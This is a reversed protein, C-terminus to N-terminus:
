LAAELWHSIKDVLDVEFECMIVKFKTNLNKLEDLTHVIYEVALHKQTINDIYKEFDAVKKLYIKSADVSSQLLWIDQKTFHYQNHTTTCLRQGSVKCNGIRM